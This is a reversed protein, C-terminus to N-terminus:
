GTRRLQEQQGTMEPWTCYPKNAPPKAQDQLMLVNERPFPEGNADFAALNISTPSNVHCVIAALPQGQPNPGPDDAIPHYLVIRGVTPEIM